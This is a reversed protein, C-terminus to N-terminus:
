LHRGSGPGAQRGHLWPVLAFMMQGALGLAGAPTAMARLFATPATGLAWSLVAEALMLLAFAIAGMALRGRGPMVPWRRLVRGAVVWSLALVLPLELAVAATEGLAPAVVTVRLVGLVFAGAFVPVLYALAPPFLHKM